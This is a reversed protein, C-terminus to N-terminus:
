RIQNDDSILPNVRYGKYIKNKLSDNVCADYKKLFQNSIELYRNQLEYSKVNNVKNLFNIVEKKYILCSDKINRQDIIIIKNKIYSIGESANYWQDDANLFIISILIILIKQM